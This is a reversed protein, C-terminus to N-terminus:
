KLLNYKITIQLDITSKYKIKSRLKMKKNNKSKNKNQNNNKRYKSGIQSFKQHHSTLLQKSNLLNMKKQRFNFDKMRNM